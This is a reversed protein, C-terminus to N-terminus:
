SRKASATLEKPYVLRKWANMIVARNEQVLAYFEEEPMCEDIEDVNACLYGVYLTTVPDLEDSFGNLQINNFRAYLDSFREVSRLRYLRAYNLTMEVESGDAMVMTTMTNREDM